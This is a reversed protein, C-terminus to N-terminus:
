PNIRMFNGSVLLAGEHRVQYQYLGAPWAQVDVPLSSSGSRMERIVAGTPSLIRVQYDGSGPQLAAATSWDLQLQDLAPNPFARGQGSRLGAPAGDAADFWASIRVDPQALDRRMICVVWDRTDPFGEVPYAGPSEVNFFRINVLGGGERPDYFGIGYRGPVDLQLTTPAGDPLYLLYFRGPIELCFASADGLRESAPELRAAPLSDFLAIAAATQRFMNERSRFDQCTLDSNAYSYGFYWEPGSGGSMLHPWLFDRRVSNHEPDESDPKVGTSSPGIESLFAAWPQGADSSRELWERTDDEADDGDSAQLSAGELDAFGLLPAYVDEKQWPYTHVQVPHQYADLRRLYSAHAKRQADTNTNEEGLNWIVGNLHAFRAVLERYYVKRNNGLTGGDLLQDNEQEQLLFHKVLGQRDMHEFVITWQDLKSVDMRDYTNPSTFPWVDEGDGNVNFTLMYQSNVGVSALYNVAGIIGKGRNGDWVPDGARWDDLHPEYSKVHNPGGDNFTGDFDEFALFNEPSGAGSMLFPKRSGGFHYYRLGVYSLAGKARLDPGRKDSAAVTFSGTEGDFALPSGPAEATVVDNGQVFEAQWTWSGNRPPSFHVRWRNGCSAGSEAANGDAAFYGPVRLTDAEHFFVVHMAYQTFPNVADNECASPGEFTLTIPHWQRLEGELEAATLSYGSLLAVTLSFVPLSLGSLRQVFWSPASVFRTKRVGASVPLFTPQMM